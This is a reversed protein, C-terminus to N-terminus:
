KRDEQRKVWADMRQGVESPSWYRRFERWFERGMLIRAGQRLDRLYTRM